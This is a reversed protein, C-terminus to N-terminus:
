IRWPGAGVTADCITGSPSSRLIPSAVADPSVEGGLLDGGGRREGQDGLVGLVERRHNHSGEEGSHGDVALVVLRLRAVLGHRRGDHNVQKHFSAALPVDERLRRRGRLWRWRRVCRCRCCGAVRRCCRRRRCVDGVARGLGEGRPRLLHRRILLLQEVPLAAGEWDLLEKAGLLHQCPHPQIRSPM